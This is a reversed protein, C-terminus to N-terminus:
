FLSAGFSIGDSYPRQIMPDEEGFVFALAVSPFKGRAEFFPFGEESVYDFWEPIKTKPMIVQLREKEKCVQTWLMNSTEWTLSNCFSADVEEVSLPLEPLEQLKACFRVDLRTLKNCEIISTPFSVFKNESVNLDKLNPFNHIIRHVDENLLDANGFHLTELKSCTSHSARIRRFSVGLQCCERIKLTVFNPLMFLSSPLHQLGKCGTIDLYNLGILNKISEPLEEISTYIMDIKLPKDMIEM